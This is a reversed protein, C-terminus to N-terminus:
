RDDDGDIGMMMMRSRRWWLSKLARMMMIMLEADGIKKAVHLLITEQFKKNQKMLKTTM